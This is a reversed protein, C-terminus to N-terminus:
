SDGKQGMRLARFYVVSLGVLILFMFSTITAARGYRFSNFGVNVAQISLVLTTDGPGGGTLLYLLDFHNFLFIGRLIVMLIIVHRMAPLVIHWLEQWGSAGDVRAAERLERPVQQLGAIMALLMFPLGKWLMVLMVAPFATAANGLWAIPENILGLETLYYNVPGFTPDLMWRWMFATVIVPIAWPAILLTRVFGQGPFDFDLLMALALAFVLQLNVVVVAVLLTNILVPLFWDAQFLWAYNELGVFEPEPNISLLDYSFLSLWLSNALPRLIIAGIVVLTPLFLMMGLLAESQGVRLRWRPKRTQQQRVNAAM